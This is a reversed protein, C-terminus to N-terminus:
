NLIFRFQYYNGDKGFGRNRYAPQLHFTPIAILRRIESAAGPTFGCGVLCESLDKDCKNFKKKQCEEPCPANKCELRSEGYCKDHLLYCMDQKDVPYLDSSPDFAKAKEEESL